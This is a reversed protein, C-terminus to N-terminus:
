TSWPIYPVRRRQISVFMSFSNDMKNFHFYEWGCFTNEKMGAVTASQQDIM